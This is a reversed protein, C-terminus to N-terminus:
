QGKREATVRPPRSPGAGGGISDMALRSVVIQERGSPDVWGIEAIAQVRALARRYEFRREAATMPRVTWPSRALLVLEREVDRIYQEIRAAASDAKEQQLRALAAKHEQYTFYIEVAGSALMTGIVLALFFVAYKRLLSSRTKMRDRPGRVRPEVASDGPRARARDEPQDRARLALAARGSARFRQRGEPHARRVPRCSPLAGAPVRRLVDPWRCRHNRERGLRGAAPAERRVRRDRHPTRAAGARCFPAARATQAGDDVLAGARHRRARAGRDSDIGARAHAGGGASRAVPASRDSEGREVGSRRAHRGSGNGEPAGPAKGDVRPERQRPGHPEHGAPRPEQDTRIRG